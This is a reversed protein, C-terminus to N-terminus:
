TRKYSDILCLDGWLVGIIRALLGPSGPFLFVGEAAQLKCVALSRSVDSNANKSSFHLFGCFVCGRGISWHDDATSNGWFYKDVSIERSFKPLHGPFRSFRPFRMMEAARTGAQQLMAVDCFAKSELKGYFYNRSDLKTWLNLDGPGSVSIGGRQPETANPKHNIRRRKQDILIIATNVYRKEAM